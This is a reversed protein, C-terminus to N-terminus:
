AVEEPVRFQLDHLRRYLGGRALLEAHTGREVIRADDLVLIQDAHRVTALRHAVVLVTRDRMLRDIAEQVLRESEPDLASTAEDLILLPPDRLLARAIAIRQRQGGSLRTGREGLVTDLGEPLRAVFETANAARAAAEVEARTAGPRGYAINALVTDNLVVTDQSVVGLLARVSRRTLRTLPVGDFRVEGADPDHFRPLLELLTTKGAGSPGVVAAVTGKPVTFSVDRLVPPGGPFAFSVRDFTVDREFRAEGLGPPEAEAPPLDLWHFVREASGLAVAMATPFQSLSKIPSMMKLAVALFVITVEPGLTVGTVAPNAAAWIILIIVLGGFVESVPSTLSAYRQTRIVRRRYRDAQAAFDAAEGDEGGYARILRIAGLREAVTATLRGREEAWERAHRRLRRLLQQVGLVLVPAAALTILTLRWSISALIALSSLILVVNQFLRALAATVAEKSQDADAVVGAILQGQRTRQLFGLDVGLLHRYLRTRLDRVLGEQVAVSLQNAAYACANKLLLAGLLLLVLRAAVAAPPRGAVLPGLVRSTVSELVTSDTALVGATGFLTKLLPVLIVLTVGDLVSALFTAGAGLALLGAYPRATALLRLAVSRRM